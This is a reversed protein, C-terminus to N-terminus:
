NGGLDSSDRRKAEDQPARRKMVAGLLAVQAVATASFTVFFPWSPGSPGFILIFGYLYPIYVLFSLPFTLLFLTLYPGYGADPGFAVVATLFFCVILYTAAILIRWWRLRV